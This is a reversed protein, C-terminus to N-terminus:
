VFILFDANKPCVSVSVSNSSSVIYNYKFLHKLFSGFDIFNLMIILSITAKTRDLDVILLGSHCAKISVPYRGNMLSQINGWPM